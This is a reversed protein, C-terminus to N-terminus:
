LISSRGPPRTRNLGKTSYRAMSVRGYPTLCTTFSGPWGSYKKCRETNPRLRSFTQHGGREAAVYEEYITEFSPGRQRGSGSDGSEAAKRAPEWVKSDVTRVTNLFAEGIEGEGALIADLENRSLEFIEMLSSKLSLRDDPELLQTKM